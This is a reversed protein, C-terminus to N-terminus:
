RAAECEAVKASYFEDTLLWEEFLRKLERLRGAVQRQTFKPPEQGNKSVALPPKPPGAEATAPKPVRTSPPTYSPDFVLAVFDEAPLLHRWLFAQMRDEAPVVQHVVERDGMKATGELTLCVPKNTASLNAKISFRATEAGAKLIVPFAQFGRPPDRLTLKIDGDFGDKRIAYVTVASPNRGRLAVASPVSRLAFDPRPESLRLRYAYSKGGQRATDRLHVYYTGDAPLKVMLYSDAHHTNLGTGPDECDDNLALVKGRSDTLTLMSDLPSDLRRAVVEAVITQGAKGEWRFVDQDDGQDIRGNIIVPLQVKQAQAADNNAEQDLSEPLTDLAFPVRNSVIGNKRATVWHIGAEADKGPAAAQAKGLNWGDLELRAPEGVRGGLPFVNTLYPMEGLTIRYVFDERGRFLADTITLVYEGDKPVEFYVAPDPKFRFDDGYAVEVGDADCVHIVPQFWGPVADAIYPVLSRADVAAVLRQGKRAEFRYRNLEGSAIQGNMTCPIGIRVEEEEPPRKRQALSEKGLVQLNATMMPKRAVEPVQGIHFPMPNSVGQATVLRIQRPGPAADPAITVEIVAISSIAACAPRQVWQRVRTELREIMAQTEPDAAAPRSRAAWELKARPRVDAKPDVKAKRRNWTRDNAGTQQKLERLQERILTMEQNTLRRYYHVLKASVGEGNVVAGTIGDIRQGGLRVQVTTGQQGGAPYVYGIYQGRASSATALWTVLALVRFWQTRGM